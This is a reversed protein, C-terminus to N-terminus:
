KGGFIINLPKLDKIDIGFLGWGPTKGCRATVIVNEVRAAEEVSITEIKPGFDVIRAKGPLKAGICEVSTFGKAVYNDNGDRLEFEVYGCVGYDLRDTELQQRAVIKGDPTVEVSGKSMPDHECGTTSCYGRGFENGDSVCHVVRTPNASAVEWPGVSFACVAGLAVLLRM